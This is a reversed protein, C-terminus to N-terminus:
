RWSRPRRADPKPSDDVRRKACVMRAILDPAATMASFPASGRMKAGIAFKNGFAAASAFSRGYDTTLFTLTERKAPMADIAVQIEKMVPVSLSKGTPRRTKNPRWELRRKHLHRRGLQYADGRRAAINLLLEIAVRAM